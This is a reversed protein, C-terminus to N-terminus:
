EEIKSKIQPYIKIIRNKIAKAIEPIQDHFRLDLVDKLATIIKEKKDVDIALIDKGFIKKIDKEKFQ